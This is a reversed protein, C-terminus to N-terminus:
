PYGFRHSLVVPKLYFNSGAQVVEIEALPLAQGLLFYFILILLKIRFPHINGVLYFYRLSFAQIIDPLSGDTHHVLYDGSILDRNDQYRM